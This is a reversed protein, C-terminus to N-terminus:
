FRLEAGLGVGENTLVPGLYELEVSAQSPGTGMAGSTREGPEVDGEDILGLLTAVALLTGGAIFFPKADIDLERTVYEDLRPDYVEETPRAFVEFIFGTAV